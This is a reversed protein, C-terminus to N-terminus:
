EQKLARKAARIEKPDLFAFVARDIFDSANSKSTAAKMKLAQKLIPDM